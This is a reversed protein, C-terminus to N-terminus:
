CWCIFTLRLINCCDKKKDAKISTGKEKKSRKKKQKKDEPACDEDDEDDGGEDDDDRMDDFLGDFEDKKVKKSAPKKFVEPEEDNGAKTKRGRKPQEVPEPKEDPM